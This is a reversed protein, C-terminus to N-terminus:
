QYEELIKMFNTTATRIDKEGFIASGVVVINVGADLVDKINSLTIGGDIQIDLDVGISNAHNRLKQVRRLSEKIFDQGGFGPNVSMILVQDVHPVFEYVTRVMTNPKLTLGVRKGTQKILDIVELVDAASWCSEVHFTIIDAGAEAFRKVYVKPNSIMLHVDFVLDTNKRLSTIAPLGISINSVFHGDMVDLHVTDVGAQTLMKLQDGLRSFDASLISPTLKIM